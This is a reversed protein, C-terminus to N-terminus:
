PRRGSYGILLLPGTKKHIAPDQLDHPDGRKAAPLRRLGELVLDWIKDANDVRHAARNSPLVDSPAPTGSALSAAQREAKIFEAKNKMQTLFGLSVDIGIFAARIEFM